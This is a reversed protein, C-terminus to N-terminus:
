ARRASGGGRRGRMPMADDIAKNAAALQDANLIDKLKERAKTNNAMILMNQERMKARAEDPMSGRDPHAELIKQIEARPAKNEEELAKNAEEIKMVQDPALNLDAKKDLVIQLPSSMMGMGMGGRRGGQALVVGPMALLVVAVMVRKLM